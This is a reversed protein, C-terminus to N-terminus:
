KMTSTTTPGASGLERGVQASFINILNHALDATDTGATGAATQLAGDRALMVLGHIFTWSILTLPSAGSSEADRRVLRGVAANLTGIAERQARALTPDSPHLESPTFMLDFLAPHALGFDAYARGLAALRQQPASESVQALARNLANFGEAAIATLLGARDRFHYKPAAHSVDARRAVARLSIAARGHEVLELRAAALLADGVGTRPPGSTM